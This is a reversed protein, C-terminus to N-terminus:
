LLWGKRAGRTIWCPNNWRPRWLTTRSIRLSLRMQHLTVLPVQASIRMNVDANTHTSPRPLHRTHRTHTTPCLCWFSMCICVYVCMCVCVYCAHVCVCVCVCVCRARSLSLSLPAFPYLFFPGHLHVGTVPSSLSNTGVSLRLANNGLIMAGVTGNAMDPMRDEGKGNRMAGGLQIPPAVCKHEQAWPKGVVVDMPGLRQTNPAVYRHSASKRFVPHNLWGSDTYEQRERGYVHKTYGHMPSFPWHRGACNAQLPIIHHTHTHPPPNTGREAINLMHKRFRCWTHACVCARGVVARVVSVDDAKCRHCLQDTLETNAGAAGSKTSSPRIEIQSCSAFVKHEATACPLLDGGVDEEGNAETPNFKHTCTSNQGVGTPNTLVLACNTCVVNPIDVTVFYDSGCGGTLDLSPDANVGTDVGTKSCGPRDQDDHHTSEYARNHPIHDLLTCYSIANDNIYKVLTVVYPSGVPALLRLCGSHLVYPGVYLHKWGSPLTAQENSM